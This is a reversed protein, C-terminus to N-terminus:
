EEIKKIEDRLEAAIEYKEEKIAKKLKEKLINIKEISIIGEEKNEKEINDLKDTNKEELKDKQVNEQNESEYKTEIAKRGMHRSDGQLNKLIPDLKESFINYCYGCGLKGNELFDNYKIGCNSCKQEKVINFSELVEDTSTDTYGKVFDSFFSQIDMPMDFNLEMELGLEKACEECVAMEKKINNVIQTYKINADERGCNNCNM